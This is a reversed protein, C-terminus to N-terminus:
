EHKVERLTVTTKFKRLAHMRLVEQWFDIADGSSSFTPIFPDDMNGRMLLAFGRTGTRHVEEQIRAGVARSDVSAAINTARIGKRHHTCHVMLQAILRADEEPARHMTLEMAAM